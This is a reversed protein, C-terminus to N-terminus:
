YSITIKIFGKQANSDGHSQLLKKEDADIRHVAEHQATDAFHLHAGNGDAILNEEDVGQEVLHTYSVSAIANSVKDRDNYTVICASVKVPEM